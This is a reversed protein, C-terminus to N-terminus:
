WKAQERFSAQIALCATRANFLINSKKLKDM